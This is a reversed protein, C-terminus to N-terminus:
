YILNILLKAIEETSCNQKNLWERIMNYAGYIIFNSIYPLAEEPYNRSIIYNSLSNQVLPLSILKEPFEPDINNNILLLALERNNLLYEFVVVLQSANDEETAQFPASIIKQLDLLLENEIDALLDYQNGYNNYFTSRNIGANDCLERISIKHISNNKLLNILSEKLIRKTLTVRQNPKKM